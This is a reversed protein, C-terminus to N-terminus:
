GGFNPAVDLWNVTYGSTTTGIMFAALTFLSIAVYPRCGVYGIIVLLIASSYMGAFLKSNLYQMCLESNSYQM